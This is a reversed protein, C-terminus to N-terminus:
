LGASLQHFTHIGQRAIQKSLVSHTETDGAMQSVCPSEQAIGFLRSPVVSLGLFQALLHAEPWLQDSAAQPKSFDKQLM